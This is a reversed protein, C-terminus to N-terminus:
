SRGESAAIAARVKDFPGEGLPYPPFTKSLHDNVAILAAKMQEASAHLPCYVIEFRYTRRVVPTPPGTIDNEKQDIRCECKM